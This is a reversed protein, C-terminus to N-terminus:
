SSAGAEKISISIPARALHGIATSLITDPRHITALRMSPSITFFCCFLAFLSGPKDYSDKLIEIPAYTM